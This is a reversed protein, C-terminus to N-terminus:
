DVDFRYAKAQDLLQYSLEYFDRYFDRCILTVADVSERLKGIDVEDIERSQPREQAVHVLERLEDSAITAHSEAEVVAFLIASWRGAITHNELAWIPVSECYHRLSSLTHQIVKLDQGTGKENLRKALKRSVHRVYSAATVILQVRSNWQSRSTSAAVRREQAARSLERQHQCAAICIAALLAGISGFAQVWAPADAKTAWAGIAPWTPYIALALSALLLTLAFAGISIAVASLVSPEKDSM